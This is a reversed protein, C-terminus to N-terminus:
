NSDYDLIFNYKFPWDCTQNHELYDCVCKCFIINHFCTNRAITAKFKKALVIDRWCTFIYAIWGIIKFTVKPPLSMNREVVSEIIHWDTHPYKQMNPDPQLTIGIQTISIKTPEVSEGNSTTFDPLKMGVSQKKVKQESEKIM